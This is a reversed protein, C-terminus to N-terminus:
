LTVSGTSIILSRSLRVIKHHPELSRGRFSGRAPRSKCLNLKPDHRRLYGDIIFAETGGKLLRPTKPPEISM